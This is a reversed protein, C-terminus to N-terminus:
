RLGRFANRTVINSRTEWFIKCYSSANTETRSMLLGALGIILHVVNHLLNIPVYGLLNSSAQSATGHFAPIFGIIGVLTYIVGFILAITKAM